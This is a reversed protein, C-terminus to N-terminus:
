DWVSSGVVRGDYFDVTVTEGGGHDEAQADNFGLAVDAGGDHRDSVFDLAHQGTISSVHQRATQELQPLQGLLVPLRELFRPDPEGDKDQTM